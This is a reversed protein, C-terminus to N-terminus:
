DEEPKDFVKRIVEAIERNIVPKMVFGQIGLAKSKEENIQNSFGTCIIIPIEPRINRIERTLQVGTMDPMAMDTVILDFSDPNAKFAELAEVSETRATVQYGLRELMQKEIRVIAEEDDVLLIKEKGGQIPGSWDISKDDVEREMIPLYVHIETGKGPESYIRIDGKSSKIIGQVVWLGLGTGKGTEKTTFYPDFIKDLVDKEIGIGTDSVILRAYEGPTLEPFGLQDPELRIQKLAVRLRGGTEEMAHYANTALNMVIQHFQTPDANVIGCDPDIDQQIEITTPISSRLLKIVERAIPQLKVPTIDQDSQRSFALIQRVLDRARFAAQLIEDVHEQLPSDPPLEEKLIGAFGLLPFLINNFDHAIGGALTGIAEMKQAQRLQGELRKKAEESQKRETIDEIVRIFYKPEGSQYRLLSVTLNVWVISNDKRIYRKEMSYTPITDALVKEIQEEDAKLDDPHTIEQFTRVLLEEQSYGVIDCVRQNVRIFRGDLESYFIGVAAQEFTGRFQEESDRLAEETQKRETIDEFITAFQGEQPRFALVSFWKGLSEAYQEFRIEQGTLAVEGYQGIWDAPDKEIGSLAETVKKGILNQRKLGTLQEFASNAELYVYDVPKGKKNVVIEHLAFGNMVNEFLLRYKEERERLAEEARKRKVLMIAIVLGFLCFCIFGLLRIYIAHRSVDYILLSWFSGKYFFLFDVLAHTVWIFIGLLVVLVLIKYEDKM